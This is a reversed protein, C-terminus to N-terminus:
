ACPPEDDPYDIGEICECTAADSWQEGDCSCGDDAIACGCMAPNSPGGGQCVCVGFGPVATPEVECECMLSDSVVGGCLCLGTEIDSACGAGATGSSDDLGTSSGSTGTDSLSCACRFSGGIGGGSVECLGSAEGDIPPCVNAAVVHECPGLGATECWLACTNCSFTDSTYCPSFLLEGDTELPDDLNIDCQANGGTTSTAGPGSSGGADGSDESSDNDASSGPGGADGSGDDPWPLVVSCSCLTLIALMRITDNM